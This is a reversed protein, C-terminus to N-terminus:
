WSLEDDSHATEALDEEEETVDEEEDDIDIEDDFEEDEDEGEDDFDEDIDEDEDDIGEDQALAEDEAQQARAEAQAQLLVPDDAQVEEAPFEYNFTEGAVTATNLRWMVPEPFSFVQGSEDWIYRIAFLFHPSGVPKSEVTGGVARVWYQGHKTPLIITGHFSYVSIKDPSRDLLKKAVSEM